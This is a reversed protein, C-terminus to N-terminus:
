GEVKKGTHLMARHVTAGARLGEIVTLDAIWSIGWRTPETAIEYLADRTKFRMGVHVKEAALFYEGPTARMAEVPDTM